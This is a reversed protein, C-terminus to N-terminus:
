CCPLEVRVSTGENEKSRISISGGVAEVLTRIIFLGLGNGQPKYQAAKEGRFFETFVNPLDKASIGCGHDIITITVSRGRGKASIDIEKGNESFASANHLLEALIEQLLDQRIRASGINQTRVSLKQHKLNIDPQVSTTAHAIASAVDAKGSASSVGNTTADVTKWTELLAQSRKLAEQLNEFAERKDKSMENGGDLDHLIELWWQISAIPAGLQHMNLRVLNSRITAIRREENARRRVLHVAILTSTLVGLLGILMLSSPSIISQSLVLFQDAAIDVGLAYHPDKLPVLATILSGWQDQYVNTVIPRDFMKGQFEFQNSVDYHEGPMAGIEDSDITDNHNIDLEALSRVVDGDVVFELTNIDDTKRFIYIFRANPILSRIRNLQQAVGIFEPKTADDPTRFNKLTETQIQMAGLEAATLMKERIIDQMVKSSHLYLSYGIAMIISFAIMSPLITTLWSRLSVRIHTM